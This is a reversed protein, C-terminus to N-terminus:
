KSTGGDDPGVATPAVKIAHRDIRSRRPQDLFSLTSGAQPNVRENEAYTKGDVQPSINVAEAELGM